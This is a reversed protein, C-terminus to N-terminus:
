VNEEKVYNLQKNKYDSYEDPHEKIFEIVNNKLCPYAKRIKTRSPVTGRKLIKVLGSSPDRMVEKEYYSVMRTNYFREYTYVMYSRVYKKPVLIIPEGDHVPLDIATIDVWKNVKSSWVPRRLSVSKMPVNYMRCQMQTFLILDELIINITLDSIRDWGVNEIMISADFIDSVLGTAVANSVCLLDFLQRGKDKGFGKGLPKNKSYGFRVENNEQLHDVMKYGNIKDKLVALKLLQGFYNVIKNSCNNSFEDGSVYILFPDLFLLSDTELEIDMFEVDDKINFKEKFSM